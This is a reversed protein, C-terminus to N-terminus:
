EWGGETEDYSNIVDGYRGQTAGLSVSSGALLQANSSLEYVIMGPKMYNKKEKMVSCIFSDTGL